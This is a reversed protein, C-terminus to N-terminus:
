DESMILIAFMVKAELLGDAVRLVMGKYKTLWRRKFAPKLTSIYKEILCVTAAMRDKM